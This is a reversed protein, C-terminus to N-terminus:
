QIRGDAEPQGTAYVSTRWRYDAGLLDLAVGTTYIKMNSAPTFLKQANRQYLATGDSMSIVCVGWRANAFESGDIASDIRKALENIQTDAAKANPTTSQKQQEKQVKEEARGASLPRSLLLVPIILFGTLLSKVLFDRTTINTSKM